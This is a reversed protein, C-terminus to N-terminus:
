IKERTVTRYEINKFSKVLKSVCFLINLVKLIYTTLFLHICKYYFMNFKVNTM